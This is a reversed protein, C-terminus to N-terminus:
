RKLNVLNETSNGEQSTYKGIEKMCGQITCYLTARNMGTCYSKGGVVAILTHKAQLHPPKKDFTFYRKLM